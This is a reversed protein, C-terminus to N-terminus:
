PADWRKSRTQRHLRRLLTRFAHPSHANSVRSVAPVHRVHHEPALTPSTPAAYHLPLTRQPCTRPKVSHNAGAHLLPSLGEPLTVPLLPPRAVLCSLPTSTHACSFFLRLLLNYAHLLRSSRPPQRLGAARALHNCVLINCSHPAHHQLLGAPVTPSHAASSSWRVKLCVFPRSESPCLICVLTSFQHEFAPM